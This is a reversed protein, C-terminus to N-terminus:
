WKIIYDFKFKENPKQFLHTDDKVAYGISDLYRIDEEAIYEDYSLHFFGKEAQEKIKILINKLKDSKNEEISLLSIQRAESALM